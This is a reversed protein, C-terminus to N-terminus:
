QRVAAPSFASSRKVATINSGRSDRNGLYEVEFGLREFDGHDYQSLHAEYPNGDKATQEYRGWPCGLVVAKTAHVELRRVVKALDASSIHEPGHWWFVIDFEKNSSFRRIDSHIVEEVWTLDRIFQVNPEFAEVVTVACGNQFFDKAFHM